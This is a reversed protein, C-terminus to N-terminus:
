KKANLYNNVQTIIQDIYLNIQAFTLNVETVKGYFNPHDKIYHVLNEQIHRTLGKLFTTQRKAYNRTKKAIEEELFHLKQDNTELYKIIEPYGIIKKELLFEKWQNDLQEVEEIWGQALMIKVRTNIRKYLEDRDRNAYIFLFDSIPDFKTQFESPLSGTARWINLAREIRYRDNKSIDNARKPDIEYLKQWLELTGLNNYNELEIDDKKIIEAPNFFFAKIYFSSGGVVIPIMNQAWIKNLTKNLIQRFKAVNWDEPQELIDFLEHNYQNLNIPKATGINLLKYFQGLDANVMVFRNPFSDLLKEAIETKGAATPGTIIISLKKM